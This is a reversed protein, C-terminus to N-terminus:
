NVDLRENVGVVGKGVVGGGGVILFTARRRISRAGTRAKGSAREEKMFAKQYEEM